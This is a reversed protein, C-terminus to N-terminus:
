LIIYGGGGVCVCVISIFFVILENGAIDWCEVCWRLKVEAGDTMVYQGGSEVMSFRWGGRTLM